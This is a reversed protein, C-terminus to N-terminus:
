WHKEYLFDVWIELTDLRFPGIQWAYAHRTPGKQSSVRSKHFIQIRLECITHQRPRQNVQLKNTTLM